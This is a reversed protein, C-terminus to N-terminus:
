REIGYTQYPFKEVLHKLRPRRISQGSDNKGLQFGVPRLLVIKKIIDRLDLGHFPDITHQIPNIRKVSLMGQVKPSRQPKTLMTLMNGSSPIKRLSLGLEQRTFSEALM